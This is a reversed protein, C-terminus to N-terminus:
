EDDEDGVGPKKASFRYSTRSQQFPLLDKELQEFQKFLKSLASYSITLGSDADFAGGLSRSKLIDIVQGLPYSRQLVPRNDFEVGRVDVAGNAACYGKLAKKAAKLQTEAALIWAAVTTAQEPLTFRKPIIAPHDALPCKLQCYACETGATAPWENRETAETITAAIATVDDAFIALDSPQFTVSVQVGFRVYSHTFTYQPFNPWIRMANFVYFRSQFDRRIQVETLPHWFTKFDIIEVGAPRAYVLDPTFTQQQQDATGGVQHEEAAVFSELDLGFHEAWRFFMERVEAVLHAPTLASAIGETFALKAEEVDAQLQQEILRTIYRHACSHFGIGKMSLDSADPTGLNWIQNYRHLCSTATQM